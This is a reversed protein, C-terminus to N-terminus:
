STRPLRLTPTNCGSMPTQDSVTEAFRAGPNYRMREPVRAECTDPNRSPPTSNNGVNPKEMRYILLIAVDERSGVNKIDHSRCLFEMMQQLSLRLERVERTLESLAGM